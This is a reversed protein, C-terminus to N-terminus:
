KFHYYLGAAPILMTIQRNQNITLPLEVNLRLEPVSNIPVFEFGPGVGLTFRHYTDWNQTNWEQESEYLYAGGAILYFRSNSYEKLPLLYNLGANFRIFGDYDTDKGSTFAFVTAQLAAKNISFRGSLGSGTSTGFHVGIAGKSPEIAFLLTMSLLILIIAIQKKM